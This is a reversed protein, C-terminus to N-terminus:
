STVAVPAFALRRRFERRLLALSLVLQLGVSTASLYWIWSLAFGSARAMVSVAVAVLMIRIFSAALSPLTNGMAQFMSSSVFIVGSAVYTWSIIRLYDRGVAIVEPDSTFLRVMQEPVIHSVIAFVMMASVSMLAAVKFTEKVREANRAGFNQGAVPAVAFGLAVAPMFGAQVLRLGIGFGAQAASGFPRSVTYVIFLYASVLAFEAGAPLGVKLMRGWLGFQPGWHAPSFHLFGNPDRFLTVMWVSAVVVAILSAFAAGAVGMPYHTGWGFMLFPALIMNLIVTVTGIVMTPKFIGTGRLAAGMGALSFQLAMAPLFWKLYDDALAATTADAALVRTYSTRLGAAVLYFVVAVAVTLVQSQNFAVLADERNKRGAAHSILTTTGVSLTQSVAFVIFMLNGAIAVAAVAEKGLHGVWYLDVLFYLTQFLMTVLMFSMTKLLHRAVSGSTLDQM